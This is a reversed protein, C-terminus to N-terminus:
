SLLYPHSVAMDSLGKVQSKKTRGTGSAGPLAESEGQLPGKLGHNSVLNLALCGRVNTFPKLLTPNQVRASVVDEGRTGTHGWPLNAAVSDDPVENIGSM